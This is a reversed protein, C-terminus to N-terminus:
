DNMYVLFHVGKISFLHENGHESSRSVTILETGFSDTCMIVDKEKLKIKINDESGYACLVTM